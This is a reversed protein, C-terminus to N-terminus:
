VVSPYVILDSVANLVAHKAISAAQELPPPFGSADVAAAAELAATAADLVTPPVSPTERSRVPCHVPV